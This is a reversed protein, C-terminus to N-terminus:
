KMLVKRASGDSLRIINLGRSVGQRGDLNFIAFGKPAFGLTSIGDTSPNITGASVIYSVDSATPNEATLSVETASAQTCGEINVLVAYSGFPVHEFRYNGSADTTTTAIISGNVEKLYVTFAASAAAEDDSSEAARTQATEQQLTISGEIVGTGNLAAPAELVDITIVLPNWDEDRGPKVLTADTWLLANPYYTDLTSATARAKVYYGDGLSYLPGEVLITDSASGETTVSAVLALENDINRAYFDITTPVLRGQFSPKVGLPEMYRDPMLQAELFWGEAGGQAGHMYVFNLMYANNKFDFIRYAYDDLTMRVVYQGPVREEIDADAIDEVPAYMDAGSNLGVYQGFDPIIYDTNIIFGDNGYYSVYGRVPLRCIGRDWMSAHHWFTFSCHIDDGKIIQVLGYGADELTPTYTYDTAGEIPTMDYTYPNRRYWQYRFVGDENTYEHYQENNNEDYTMARVFITFLGGLEQGVLPTAIGSESWSTRQTFLVPMEALVTNSVYGEKDGGHIVLRFETNRSIAIRAQPTNEDYRVAETEDYNMVTKWEESGKGRQQLTFYQGGFNEPLPIELNAMVRTDISSVANCVEELQLGAFHGEQLPTYANVPLSPLEGKSGPEVELPTPQAYIAISAAMVILTLLSKKM